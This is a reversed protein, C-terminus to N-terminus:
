REAERKEMITQRIKAKNKVDEYCMDVIQRQLRIMM